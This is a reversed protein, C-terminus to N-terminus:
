MVTAMQVLREERIESVLALLVGRDTWVMVSVGKRQGCRLDKEGAQMRRMSGLDLDEASMQFLSVRSGGEDQHFSVAVRRDALRCLRGGLLTSGPLAPARVAFDVRAALWNAVLTPDASSFEAPAPSQAFLLHDEVLTAALEGDARGEMWWWGAALAMALVVSSAVATMWRRWQSQLAREYRARSLGALVREKIEVPAELPPLKAKLAARWSSEAEATKRCSVCGEVHLRAAAVDDTVAALGRTERLIRRAENCGMM